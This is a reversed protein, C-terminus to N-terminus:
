EAKEKNYDNGDIISNFVQQTMDFSEMQSRDLFFSWHIEQIANNWM